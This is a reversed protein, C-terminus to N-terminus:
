PSPRIQTNVVSTAEAQVFVPAYHDIKWGGRHRHDIMVIARARHRKLADRLWASWYGVPDRAWRYVVHVLEYGHSEAIERLTAEAAAKDDVLSVYLLGVAPRHPPRETM